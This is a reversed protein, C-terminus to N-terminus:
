ERNGENELHFRHYLRHIIPTWITGIVSLFAVGSFASYVVEWAKAAADPMAVVPGESFLIMAAAHYADIWGLGVFHRYGFAGIALSVVVILFSLCSFLAMRRVFAGTNALQEHRREFSM